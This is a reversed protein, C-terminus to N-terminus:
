ATMLPQEDFTRDPYKTRLYDLREKNDRTRRNVREIHSMAEIPSISKDNYTAAIIEDFSIFLELKNSNMFFASHAAAVQNERVHFNNHYNFDYL